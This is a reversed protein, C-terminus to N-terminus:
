EFEFVHERALAARVGAAGAIDPFPGGLPVDRGEADRVRAPKGAMLVELQLRPLPGEVRTAVRARGEARRTVEVRLRCAPQTPIVLGELVIPKGLLERPIRPFVRLRRGVADYDVGFLHEIVAQAYQSASWAYRAVGHGEGSSPALYEAYNGHFSKITSWALEAALDHRGMDELGVIVPLNRMTWIDGFWATGDYKGKAEVYAAETMALSTLPRKGWNFLAPNTLKEVLRAARDPPAIGAELPDFTSVILRDRLRGTKVEYNFYAGRREDWLYANVASRLDAFAREYRAAEGAKGLAKALAATNRCGIAVAVNLDVPALSQPTLLHIEAEGLTEEFIATILGTRGDRKVPSLWWDLYASMTRYIELREPVGASRRAVDFAAEFFRPISSADGAQGRVASGGYLDIRGDPNLAQVGAFGRMVNVAFEQNAWKAGALALSTDLQWWNEGYYGGPKFVPYRFGFVPVDTVVCEELVRFADAFGSQSLGPITIRPAVLASSLDVTQLAPRPPGAAIEIWDFWIDGRIANPAIRIAIRDISGEWRGELHCIAEQWRNADAELTFRASGAPKEPQGPKWWLVFADTAASRNLLRMRVKNFRAASIGLGAPSVLDYRSAGADGYIQFHTTALRAPDSIAPALTVWMAGGMVAGTMRPATTWGEPDNWRDFDWRPNKAWGAEPVVLLALLSLLLGTRM